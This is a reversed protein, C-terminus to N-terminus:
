VAGITGWVSPKQADRESGATLTWGQQPRRASDGETAQRELTWRVSDSVLLCTVRRIGGLDGLVSLRAQHDGRGFVSTQTKEMSPATMAGYVISAVERWALHGLPPSVFRPRTNGLIAHEYRLSSAPPRCVLFFTKKVFAQTTSTAETTSFCLTPQTAHYSMLGADFDNSVAAPPSQLTKALSLSKITAVHCYTQLDSTGPSSFARKNSLYM